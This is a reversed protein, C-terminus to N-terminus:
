PSPTRRPGWQSQRQLGSHGLSGSASLPMTPRHAALASTICAPHGLIPHCGQFTGQLASIAPDWCFNLMALRDSCPVWATVTATAGPDWFFILVVLRNFWPVWQTAFASNLLREDHDDTIVHDIVNQRTSGNIKANCPICHLSDGKWVTGHCGFEKDIAREYPDTIPPACFVTEIALKLSELPIDACLAPVTDKMFQAGNAILEVRFKALKAVLQAAPRQM